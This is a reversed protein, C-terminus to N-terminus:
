KKLEQLEYREEKDLECVQEKALLYDLKKKDELGKKKLKNVCDWCLASYDVGEAEMAKIIAQDEGNDEDWPFCDVWLFDMETDGYEGCRDCTNFRIPELVDDYVSLENEECQKLLEDLSIRQHQVQDQLLEIVQAEKTLRGRM